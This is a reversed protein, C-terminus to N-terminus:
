TSSQNGDPADSFLEGPSISLADCIKDITSRYIRKWNDHYIVSIAQKSIGTMRHLEAQTIRREGLIRSLNTKVM